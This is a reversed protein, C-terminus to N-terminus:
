PARLTPRCRRRAPAALPRLLDRQRGEARCQGLLADAARRAGAARFQSLRVGVEQDRRCIRTGGILVLREAFNVFIFTESNIGDLEPIALFKPRMCSRSPRSSARAARRGAPPHVHQARVPQALRQRHGGAGAAPIGSRRRRLPGPRVARPGPSLRAHAPAPQRVPEPSVPQNIKGWDVTDKTGPEEVIYKDRPRAAPSARRHQRRLQRRPRTRGRRRRVAHEYLVPASQNWHVTGLHHMGQRDLGFRSKTGTMPDDTKM